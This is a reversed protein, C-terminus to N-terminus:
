RGHLSATLTMVMGMWLRLARAPVFVSQWSCMMLVAVM